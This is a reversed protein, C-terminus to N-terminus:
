GGRLVEEKDQEQYMEHREIFEAMNRLQFFAILRGKECLTLQDWERPSIHLEFQVMMEYFIQPAGIIDLHGLLKTRYDKAASKQKRDKVKLSADLYRM